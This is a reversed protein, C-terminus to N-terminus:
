APKRRQVIIMIDSVTDGSDDTVRVSWNGNEFHGDVDSLMNRAAVVAEHHAKTAGRLDLGERDTRQMGDNIHFFFKPM